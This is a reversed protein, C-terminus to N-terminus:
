KQRTDWPAFLSDLARDILEQPGSYRGNRVEEWVRATLEPNLTYRREDSFVLIIPELAANDLNPIDSM